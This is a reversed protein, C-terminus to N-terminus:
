SKERYFGKGNSFYIDDAEVGKLYGAATIETIDAAGNPGASFIVYYNGNNMYGYETNSFPDILVGNVILPNAKTLITACITASSAPYTNPVQNKYYSEIAKQLVELEVRVKPMNTDNRMEKFRPIVTGACIAVALIVLLLEILTIGKRGM